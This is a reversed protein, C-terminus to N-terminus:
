MKSAQGRHPLRKSGEARKQREGKSKCPKKISESHFDQAKHPKFVVVQELIQRRQRRLPRKAPCFNTITVCYVDTKDKITLTKQAKNLFCKRVKVEYINKEINNDLLKIAEGKKPKLASPILKQAPHLSPSPNCINKSM